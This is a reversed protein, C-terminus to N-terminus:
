RYLAVENELQFKHAARDDVERFNRLDKKNGLLLAIFRHDTNEEIKHKWGALHELSDRCTLDFVYVVGIINKFFAPVLEKNDLCGLIDWFCVTFKHQREEFPAIFKRFGVQVGVTPVSYPDFKNQCFREKINTKGVGPDGM